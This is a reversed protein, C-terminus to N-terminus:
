GAPLIRAAVVDAAAQDLTPNVHSYTGLTVAISAHGLREQVVRPHIHDELALTAWTHRLGHLTLPPLDWATVRREFRKSFAEPHHPEGLPTTFVYGSDIWSRGAILRETNQQARWHRLIKCTGDDLAISRRGAKTKPNTLTIKHRVVTLNRHVSLHRRELDLDEWRLGLLEGRRLGTAALLVWAPYDREAAAQSRGLFRQVTQSDWCPLLHKGPHHSRPAKAADAPNHNIRKWTVADKFARHIMTHIYNVTRESLGGRGDIRGSQLLESYLRTLAGGDIRDLRIGGIRPIVHNTLNRRYSDITNASVTHEIAALWEVLFQGVTQTGASAYIGGDLDALVKTLAKQAEAKTRFGGKTKQNRAGTAPDRGLEYKISWSSRRKFISGRSV